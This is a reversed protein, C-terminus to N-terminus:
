SRAGAEQSPSDQSEKGGGMKRYTIRSVHWVAVGTLGISPFILFNGILESVLSYVAVTVCWIAASVIVSALIALRRARREIPSYDATVLLIFYIAASTMTVALGSLWAIDNNTM